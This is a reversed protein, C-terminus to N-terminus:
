GGCARSRADRAQPPAPPLTAPEGPDHPLPPMSPDDQRAPRGWQLYLTPLVFMNLLTSTVLGGVIVVAMPQELERGPTGVSLALPLLGVGATLATMLIPALREMAGRVVLTRGFPMGEETRLHRYHTILMIGNRTAIGFVSLYFLRCKRPAGGTARGEHEGTVV